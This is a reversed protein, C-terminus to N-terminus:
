CWEPPIKGPGVSHLHSHLFIHIYVTYIFHLKQVNRQRVEADVLEKVNEESILEKSTFTVELHIVHELQKSATLVQAAKASTIKDPTVATTSSVPITGSREDTVTLSSILLILSFSFMMSHYGFKLCSSSSCWQDEDKRCVSLIEYLDLFGANNPSCLSMKDILVQRWLVLISDTTCITDAVVDTVCSMPVVKIGEKYCVFALQASCYDDSWRGANGLHTTVCNQSEQFNDPQGIAWYRFKSDRGDSWDRTRYFSIYMKSPSRNCQSKWLQCHFDLFIRQPVRLYTNKLYSSDNFKVPSTASMSCIIYLRHFLLMCWVQIVYRVLKFIFNSVIILLYDACDAAFYSNLRDSSTKQGTFDLGSGWTTPWINFKTTRTRTELVPWIQTTDGATNSLMLGAWRRSWLLSVSTTGPLIQLSLCCFM